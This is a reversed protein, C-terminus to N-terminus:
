AVGLETLLEQRERDIVKPEALLADEFEAVADEVTPLSLGKAGAVMFAAVVQREATAQSAIRELHLAYVM